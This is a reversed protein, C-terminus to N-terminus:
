RSQELAHRLAEREFESLTDYAPYAARAAQDLPQGQRLALRAREIDAEDLTLSRPTERTVRLDIKDLLAPDIPASAPRWYKPIAAELLAGLSLLLAIGAPLLQMNAPTADRYLVLAFAVGTLGVTAMLVRYVWMVGARSRDLTDVLGKRAPTMEPVATVTTVARTVRDFTDKSVPLRGSVGIEVTSGTARRISISRALVYAVVVIAALVVLVVGAVLWLGPTDAGIEVVALTLRM